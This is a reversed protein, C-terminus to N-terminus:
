FLVDCPAGGEFSESDSAREVTSIMTCPHVRTGKHMHM